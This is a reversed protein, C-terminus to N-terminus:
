TGTERIDSSLQKDHQCDNPQLFQRNQGADTEHSPFVLLPQKAQENQTHVIHDIQQESTVAHINRVWPQIFSSLNTIM